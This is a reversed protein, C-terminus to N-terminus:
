ASALNLHDFFDKLQKKTDEDLSAISIKAKKHQYHVVYEGAFYNVKTIQNVHIKKGLPGNLRIMNNEVVFYDYRKQYIFMGFYLVSILMWFLDFWKLQNFASSKNIFLLMWVIGFILNFRM